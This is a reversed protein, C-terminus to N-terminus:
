ENEKTQKHHNCMPQCQLNLINYMKKTENGATPEIDDRQQRLICDIFTNGAWGPFTLALRDPAM